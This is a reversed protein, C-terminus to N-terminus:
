ERYFLLLQMDTRVAANKMRSSKQVFGQVKHNPLCRLMGKLGFSVRIAESCLLERLGVDDGKM